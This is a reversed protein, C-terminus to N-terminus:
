RRTNTHQAKARHMTGGPMPAPPAPATQIPNSAQAESQQQYYTYDQLLSTKAQYTHFIRLMECGQDYPVEQTDRSSTVPKQENTNTLKLHRLAPNPIDRIFIWRLQFIGKWKDQAWVNSSVSYDLETLMEAVGCFHGSANVSFFLYIPGQASSEKHAKDLRNNGLPTSSWIEFKISKFVDDETFSKIVFFRASAPRTDFEAPNYGKETVLAAVEPSIGMAPPEFAKNPLVTDGGNYAMGGNSYAGPLAPQAPPLPSFPAFAPLPRGSYDPAQIQPGQPMPRGGSAHQQRLYMGQQGQNVAPSNARYYADLRAAAEWPESQGQGNQQQHGNPRFENGDLRFGTQMAAALLAQQEQLHAAQQALLRQQAALSDAQGMHPHQMQHLSPFQLNNPGNHGQVYSRQQQHNAHFSPFRDPAGDPSVLGAIRGKDSYFDSQPAAGGASMVNRQEGREDIGQQGSVGATSHGGNRLASITLRGGSHTHGIPRVYPSASAPGQLPVEDSLARHISQRQSSTEPQATGQADDALARSWTPQLPRTPLPHATRAVFRDQDLAATQLAEPATVLPPLSPTPRKPASVNTSLQRAPIALQSPTRVSGSGTEASSTAARARSSWAPTNSLSNARRVSADGNALPRDDLQDLLPRSHLHLPQASSLHQFQQKEAPTPSWPSGGGLIASDIPSAPPPSSASSLSRGLGYANGM